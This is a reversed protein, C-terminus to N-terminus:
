HFAVIAVSPVDVSGAAEGLLGTAPDRPLWSVTGSRQNAVYVWNEAPDLTFHRPWDGGSPTSALRRLTSEGAEFTAITNEGRNSCYVFRGDSSVAIEAPAQPDPSGDPVTPVAEHPRLGGAAADWGAVTIEPRLEGLIYCTHGDPHFALHRPGAGTPLVLRDHETLKGTTLELRYVYVSDAGLDVALVWKGSPDTLIQHAHAQRHQGTHRVRDTADGLEANPLIPHVVVSGDGYNASLLYRGSPHVSLHTTADGHAPRTNLVRPHEPDALSVATLRGDLEFENTVYMARRDASFALFSADPVEGVTHELRLEPRRAPRRALELGRGPPEGSSTYSGLFVLRERSGRREAAVAPRNGAAGAFGAMGIAGLMGAAGLFRRRGMTGM